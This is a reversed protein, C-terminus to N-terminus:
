ATIYRHWGSPLNDILKERKIIGLAYMRSLAGYITASHMAYRLIKCHGEITHPSRYRMESIQKVGLDSSLMLATELEPKGFPNLIFNPKEM